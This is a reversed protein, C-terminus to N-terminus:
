HCNSVTVKARLHRRPADVGDGQASGPPYRSRCTHPMDPREVASRLRCSM